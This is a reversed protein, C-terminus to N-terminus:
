NLLNERDCREVEEDADDDDDDDDHRWECLEWSEGDRAM